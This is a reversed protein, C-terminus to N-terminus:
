TPILGLVIGMAPARKLVGNFTGDGGAVTLVAGTRACYTLAQHLEEDYTATDRVCFIPGLRNAPVLQEWLELLSDAEGSGASANIFLALTSSDAKTPMFHEM